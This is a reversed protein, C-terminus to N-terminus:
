GLYIGILTDVRKVTSNLYADSNIKLHLMGTEAPIKKFMPNAAKMRKVRIFINIFSKLERNVSLKSLTM